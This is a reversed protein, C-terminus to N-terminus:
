QKGESNTDSLKDLNLIYNREDSTFHSLIEEANPDNQKVLENFARVAPADALFAKNTSLPNRLMECLKVYVLKSRWGDSGAIRKALNGCATREKSHSFCRAIFWIVFVIAAGALVGVIVLGLFPAVITVLAACSLLAILFALEAVAALALFGIVVCDRILNLNSIAKKQEETTPKDSVQPLRLPAPALRPIASEINV